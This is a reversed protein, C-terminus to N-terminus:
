DIAAVQAIRREVRSIERDLDTAGVDEQLLGDFIAASSQYAAMAKEGDGERQRIIGLAIYAHALDLLVASDASRAEAYRQRLTIYTSRLDELDTYRGSHKYISSLEGYLDIVSNLAVSRAPNLQLRVKHRAFANGLAAATKEDDGEHAYIVALQEYASALMGIYHDNESDIGVLTESIDAASLTADLAEELEEDRLSLDGSGLYTRHATELVATDRPREKLLGQLADLSMLYAEGAKHPQGNRLYASGMRGISDADYLKLSADGPRVALLDPTLAMGRKFFALAVVYNELQSQIVAITKFTDALSRKLADDGPDSKLQTLIMDLREHHSELADNLARNKEELAHARAQTVAVRRALNERDAEEALLRSAEEALRAQTAARREGAISTGLAIVLFSAVLITAGTIWPHKAALIRLHDRARLNHPHIFPDKPFHHGHGSPSPSLAQTEALPAVRVGGDDTLIIADLFTAHIAEEGGLHDLTATSDDGYHEMARLVIWDIFDRDHECLVGDDILYSSLDKSRDSAWERAASALEHPAVQDLQVAYAGFLLNRDRDM